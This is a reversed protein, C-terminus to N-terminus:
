QNFYITRHLIPLVADDHTIIIVTKDKALTKILRLVIKKTEHDLGTTPEDLIYLKSNKLFAKILLVVQRQGGSLQNGDIGVSTNLGDPLTNFITIDFTKIFERVIKEPANHGYQINYLVTNNFLKSTQNIYSINNRLYDTNYNNLNHNGLFIEGSTLKYFRMLLKIFTTKGSGSTGFIGVTEHHNIKFSKDHIIENKSGPYKFSIRNVSIDCRSITNQLSVDIDAPRKSINQLFKESNILQGVNANLFPLESSFSNIFIFYYTLMVLSTIMTHPTIKGTNLLNFLLTMIAIYFVITSINLMTYLTNNCGTTALNVELYEKGLLEYDSIEAEISNNTYISFLNALKDKTIENMKSFFQDRIVAKKICKHGFIRYIIIAVIPSSATLLFLYRNKRYFYINLVIVTMIAPVFVSIISILTHQLAYPILILNGIFDGISIDAYDEKYRRIISDYFYKRISLFFQPFIMDEIYHKIIKAFKIITWFICSYIVLSIIQKKHTKIKPLTQSLESINTSMVFSEFPYTFAIIIFYVLFKLKNKLIFQVTLDVTLM